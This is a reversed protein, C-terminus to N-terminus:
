GGEGAGTRAGLAVSLVKRGLRLRMAPVEEEERCGKGRGGNGGRGTWEVRKAGVGQCMGDVVDEGAVASALVLCTTDMFDWHPM